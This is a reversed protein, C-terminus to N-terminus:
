LKFSNKKPSARLFFNCQSLPFFIVTQKPLRLQNERFSSSRLYLAITLVTFRKLDIKVQSVAHKLKPLVTHIYVQM